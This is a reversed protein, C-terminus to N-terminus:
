TVPAWDFELTVSDFKKGAPKVEITLKAPEFDTPIKLKGAINQFYRFKMKHSSKNDPTLEKLKLTKTQGDQLGQLSIYINGKAVVGSNIVQSVTFEYSFDGEESDVSLKFKQIRLSKKDSGTSVIGRLFALEEEMELREDQFQKIQLKIARIVEKDMQASQQAMSLQRRLEEREAELLKMKGQASPKFPVLGHQLGTGGMQFGYWGTVLMALLLLLIRLWAPTREHPAVIEPGRYKAEKSM